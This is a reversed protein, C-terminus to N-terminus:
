AWVSIPNKPYILPLLSMKEESLPSSCLLNTHFRLDVNGNSLFVPGIYNIDCLIANGEIDSLGVSYLADIAQQKTDTQLYYEQRM